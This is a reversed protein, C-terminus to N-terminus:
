ILENRKSRNASVTTQGHQRRQLQETMIGLVQHNRSKIPVVLKDSSKWEEVFSLHENDGDFVRRQNFFYKRLYRFFKGKYFNNLAIVLTSQTKGFKKTCRRQNENKESHKHEFLKSSQLMSVRPPHNVHIPSSEKALASHLNRNETRGLSMISRAARAACVTIPHDSGVTRNTDM